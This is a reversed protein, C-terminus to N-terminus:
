EALPEEPKDLLRASRASGACDSCTPSRAIALQHLNMWALDRRQPDRCAPCGLWRNFDWLDVVVSADTRARHPSQLHDILIARMSEITPPDVHMPDRDTADNALLDPPRILRSSPDDVPPRPSPAPRAPIIAVLRSGAQLAFHVSRDLWLRRTSPKSHPPGAIVFTRLDINWGQLREAARRYDDADIAKGVSRLWQPEITELGIAIELQAEIQSAFRLTQVDCLRPHNEVVVRQFGQCQKAIAPHDIAPISKLDFFNGSNYLKLWRPRAPSPPPLAALVSDIQRPIAGAPTPGKLTHRWLDCYHCAFPCESATLFITVAEVSTGDGRPEEEILWGQPSWPDHAPRDLGHPRRLVQLAHTHM